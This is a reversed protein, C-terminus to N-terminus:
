GAASGTGTEAGRPVSCMPSALSYQRTTLSSGSGRSRGAVEEDLRKLRNCLEGSYGRELCRAYKMENTEPM